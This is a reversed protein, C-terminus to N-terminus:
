GDHSIDPTVAIIEHDTNNTFYRILSEGLIEDGGVILIKKSM